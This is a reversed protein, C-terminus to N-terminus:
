ARGARWAMSKQTAASKGFAGALFGVGSFAGGTMLAVMAGLANQVVTEELVSRFYDAFGKAGQRMSEYAGDFAQVMSNALEQNYKKAEGLASSGEGGAGRDLGFFRGGRGPLNQRRTFNDMDRQAFEYDFTGLPRPVSGPVGVGTGTAPDVEGPAKPYATVTTTPMFSVPTTLAIKLDRIHQELAQAKAQMLIVKDLAKRYVGEDLSRAKRAWDLDQEAAYKQRDLKALEASSDKLDNRWSEREQPSAQYFPSQAQKLLQATAAETEEKLRKQHMALAGIGAILLGVGGLVMGTTTLMGQMAETAIMFGQAVVESSVGLGNMTGTLRSGFMAYRALKEGSTAATNGVRQISQNVQEASTSGTAGMTVLKGTVVDLMTVIKQAGREVGATGLTAEIFLNQAM